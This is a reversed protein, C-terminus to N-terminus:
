VLRYSHPLLRGRCSLSRGARGAFPIFLFHTFATAALIQLIGTDPKGFQIKSMGSPQHFLQRNVFLHMSSPIIDNM